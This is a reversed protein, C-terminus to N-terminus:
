RKWRDNIRNSRELADAIRSLERECNRLTSNDIFDRVLLAVAIVFLFGTNLGEIM